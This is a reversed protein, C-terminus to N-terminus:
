RILDLILGAEVAANDIDVILKEVENIPWIKDSIPKSSKAQYSLIQSGDKATIPHAHILANRKEILDNFTSLCKDLMQKDVGKIPLMTSKITDELKKKVIGSTYVGKKPRSYESAFGVELKEIIYIITWEYYAFVYVAKGVLAAYNDNVPIRTSTNNSM